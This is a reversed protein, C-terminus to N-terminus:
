LLMHGERVKVEKELAGIFDEITWELQGNDAARIMGLLISEPVKEMLFPVVLNSYTKPDVGLAKLGHHHIEIQDLLQRLWSVNREGFVPALSILHNTHSREIVHPNDCRKKLLDVAITYSSDRTLIGADVSRASGDLYGHLYKLKNIDENDHVASSFADWFEKWEHVQGFFKRIELKPLKVKFRNGSSMSSSAAASGQSDRRMLSPTNMTLKALQDKINSVTILINQKYTSPENIEKDIVADQEKEYMTELLEEDMKKLSKRTEILEMKYAELKGKTLANGSEKLFEEVRKILLMANWRHVSRKKKLKEMVLRRKGM